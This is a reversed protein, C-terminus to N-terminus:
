QANLYFENQSCIHCPYQTLPSNYSHVWKLTNGILNRYLGNIIIVQQQILIPSSFLFFFQYARNFLPAKEKFLANMDLIVLCTISMPEKKKYLIYLISCKNKM